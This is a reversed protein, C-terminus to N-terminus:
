SFAQFNEEISALAPSLLGGPLKIRLIPWNAWALGQLQSSKGGNLKDKEHFVIADSVVDMDLIVELNGFGISDNGATLGLWVLSLDAVDARFASGERRPFAAKPAGKALCGM